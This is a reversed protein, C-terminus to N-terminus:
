CAYFLAPIDRRIERDLQAGGVTIESFDRLEATEGAEGM